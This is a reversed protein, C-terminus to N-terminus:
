KTSVRDDILFVLLYVVASAISLSFKYYRAYTVRAIGGIIFEKGKIM